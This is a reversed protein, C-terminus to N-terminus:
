PAAVAVVAAASLAHWLAHGQLRSDPRCLVRGTRSSWHVAAGAGFLALTAARRRAAVPGTTFALALTAALAMATTDHVVKGARGGPGHYGVSGIGAAISSVGLAVRRRTRPRRLVWMGAACYALSSVTNVPQAVLGPRCHECDSVAIHQLGDGAM